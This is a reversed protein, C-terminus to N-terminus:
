KLTQITIRIRHAHANDDLLIFDSTIAFAYPHGRVNLIGNDYRETTLTDNETVHQDSKGQTTIGAQVMVSGGGYRGREIICVLAFRENPM